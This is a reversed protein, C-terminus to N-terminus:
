PTLELAQYSDPALISALRGSDITSLDRDQWAPNQDKDILVARVGEYFDKNKLLGQVIKFEEELCTEISQDRMQTMLYFSAVLSIPARLRLLDAARNASETRLCEAMVAAATPAEFCASWGAAGDLLLPAPFPASSEALVLDWDHGDDAILAAFLDPLNESPVYHTALGAHCLDGAGIRDGTMALYLGFVGPCRNLFWSSGVDPVFGIATEPMAFVTKETVIRYDGHMSIGAGGGMVIGDILAFYPKPYHHILHNLRYEQRFFDLVTVDGARGREYVLRIDGGACFARADPRARVIVAKVGPDSAWLRLCDTMADIMAPDLANLAKPRDLTLVGFCGMQEAIIAHNFPM